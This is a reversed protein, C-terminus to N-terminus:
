DAASLETGIIPLEYYIVGFCDSVSHKGLCQPIRPFVQLRSAPVVEKSFSPKQLFHSRRKVHLGLEEERGPLFLGSSRFKAISTTCFDHYHRYIVHQSSLYSNFLLFVSM